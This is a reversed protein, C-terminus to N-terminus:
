TVATRVQSLQVIMIYEIKPKYRAKVTALEDQGDPSVGQRLLLMQKDKETLQGLRRAVTETQHLPLDSAILLIDRGGGADYDTTGTSYWLRGPM